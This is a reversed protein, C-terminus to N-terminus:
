LGGEGANVRIGSSRANKGRMNTFRTDSTFGDSVGRRGPEDIITERDSWVRDGRQDYHLEESKIIREEGRDNHTVLVVNGRAVMIGTTADYEGTKSTLKGPKKGQDDYFTLKVGRLETVQTNPRTFATDGYLDARLVGGETLKLNMGYTRQTDDAEAVTPAAPTPPTECAALAAGTVLMWAGSRMRM